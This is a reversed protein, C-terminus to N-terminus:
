TQIPFELQTFISIWLMEENIEDPKLGDAVMERIAHIIEDRGGYNFAVSLILRDNNKTMEVAHVVKQRLEPDLRELRGIHRLQVGEEHLESLERDIVDALIFM